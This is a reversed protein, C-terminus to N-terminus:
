FIPGLDKNLWVRHDWYEFLLLEKATTHQAPPVPTDKSFQLSIHMFINPM